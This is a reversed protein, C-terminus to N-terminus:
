SDPCGVGKMDGHIIDQEHLYDLGRVIDYVLPNRPFLHDAKLFGILNRNDMWLSVLCLQTQTVDLYYIGYFPLINPHNLLGRLIAEKALSQLLADRQSKSLVFSKSASSKDVITKGISTAFDGTIKHNRKAILIGLSM